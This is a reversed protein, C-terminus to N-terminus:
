FDTNKELFSFQEFFFKFNTDIQRFILPPLTVQDSYWLGRGWLEEGGGLSCVSRFVNGEKTNICPIDFNSM